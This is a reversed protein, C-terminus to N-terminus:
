RNLKNQRRTEDLLEALLRNTEDAQALARNVYESQKRTKSALWVFLVVLLLTMVILPIWSLLGGYSESADVAEQAILFLSM